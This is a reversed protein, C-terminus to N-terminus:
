RPQFIFKATSPKTVMTTVYSVIVTSGKRLDMVPHEKRCMGIKSSEGIEKISQIISPIIQVVSRGIELIFLQKMNM